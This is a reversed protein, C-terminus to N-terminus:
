HVFKFLVTDFPISYISDIRLSDPNDNIKFYHMRSAKVHYVEDSNMSIGSAGPIYTSGISNFPKAYGISDKVIVRIWGEPDMVFEPNYFENEGTFVLKSQNGDYPFYGDASIEGIQFTTADDYTRFYFEGDTDTRVTDVLYLIPNQLGGQSVVGFLPVLVNPVPDFTGFEVVSGRLQTGEFDDDGGPFCSSIVFITILFPIIQKMIPLKRVSLIPSGYQYSLIIPYYEQM